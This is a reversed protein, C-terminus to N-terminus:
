NECWRRGERERKEGKWGRRREEGGDWVLLRPPHLQLRKGGEEEEVRM